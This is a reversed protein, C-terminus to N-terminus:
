PTILKLEEALYAGTNILYLTRNDQEYIDTIVGLKTFSGSVDQYCVQLGLALDSDTTNRLTLIKM